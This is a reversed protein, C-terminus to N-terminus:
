VYGYIGRVSVEGAYVEEISGNEKEVLLEGMQNIGHAVAAFEGKPDLVRVQRDRNVLLANYEEMLPALNQAREFSDYAKEFNEMVCVVLKNRDIRKGSELYLSTATQRIEESFVAQNVNIGVGCILSDILSGKLDLETLIGVAKKGAIVIDNPWKIEAALGTCERIARATALAMVLTVMSAKDPAFDPKLLLSMYINEEQVSEWNRGRRGRGKSQADTIVLTFDAAGNDAQRKAELNTSDVMDFCLLSIEKGATKANFNKQLEEKWTAM